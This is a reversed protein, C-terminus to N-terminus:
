CDMQYLIGTLDLQQDGVSAALYNESESISPNSSVYLIPASKIFGNWPEPSQFQDWTQAGQSCVIERCPSSFSPDEIHRRAIDCTAITTLLDPVM